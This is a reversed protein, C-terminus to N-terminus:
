KHHKEFFDSGDREAGRSDGSVDPGRDSDDIPPGRYVEKGKNLRPEPDEAWITYAWFDSFRSILETDYSTM